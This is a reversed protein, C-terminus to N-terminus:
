KRNTGQVYELIIQELKPILFMPGTVIYKCAVELRNNRRNARRGFFIRKKREEKDSERHFFIM